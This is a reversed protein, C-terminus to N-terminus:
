EEETEIRLTKDQESVILRIVQMDDSVLKTISEANDVFVPMSVEHVKSFGKIIELGANIRAANNATSYPIYGASTLAMVECDDAIGGNIQVKFLRFRVNNFHANIKDTLMEAKKRGFTEALDLGQRAKAYAEACAKEQAELEKIRERIRCDADYQAAEMSLDALQKDIDAIEATKDANKENKCDQLADIQAQSTNIDRMIESYIDTNEFPAADKIQSKLKDREVSTKNAAAEASVAKSHLTEAEAEAAAIIEKSCKKGEKNLIELKLSKQENFQAKAEEIKDEPIAQGCTPCITDGSWESANIEQWQQILSDRTTRLREIATLKDNYAQKVSKAAQIQEMYKDSLECIKKHVESNVALSQKFYEARKKELKAKSAAIDAKLSQIMQSDTASAELQLAVRKANLRGIEKKVEEARKDTVNSMSRTAEDIRGPIEKLDANAKKEAAKSIQIFEDMGYWNATAGPKLMLHMLPKLEECSNIIDFDDIDGALAMLLERRKKIDLVDAFYQPMSLLMLTRIDAISELYANYEAEKKPAGDIYYSITHGSFTPEASGRKKKWNESFVKRFSIEAGDDLIYVGEVETDVNHMEEGDTNRPKPLFNPTLSSDKDFLLWAQADAITTKGTGNDGYISLSKGDANIELSKIGEFNTLKLTKLKM